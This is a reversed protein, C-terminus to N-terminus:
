PADATRRDFWAATVPGYVSECLIGEILDAGLTHARTIAAQCGIGDLWLGIGHAQARRVWDGSPTQQAATRLAAIDPTVWAIGIARLLEWDTDGVHPRLALLRYGRRSFNAAAARVHSDHELATGSLRLVVQHPALGLRRLLTEFVQGHQEPLAAVHRLHVDMALLGDRQDGLSLHHLAHLSRLFRDLFVVDDSDWAHVYLTEPIVPQGRDSEALLKASWAFLKGTARALVPVQRPMLRFGAFHASVRGDTFQFYAQDSVEHRPHLDALHENFYQVVSTLPMTGGM